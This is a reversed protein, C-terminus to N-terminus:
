PTVPVVLPGPSEPIGERGLQTGPALERRPALLQGALPKGGPLQGREVILIGDGTQVALQGVLSLITGPTAREAVPQPQWSAAHIQLSEGTATTTWARPWGWMARVHRELEVAPRNWDLRGDAKVLPRTLTAGAGQPTDSLKGNMLPWLSDRLLEAATDALRITLSETTDTPAIDIVQRSLMAGTDLGREMRMMTVGSKTDGNAIAASIPAAGRYAPLLSAHLNVCGKTPLELISRGLILGFAAVVILDPQVSTVPGRQDGTRLSATQYIPLGLEQAVLKVPPAQLKRGRGTGRDPQTVVLEVSVGEMDALARLSPCAFDPTGMYVCRITM